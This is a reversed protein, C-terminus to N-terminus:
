ADWCLRGSDNGTRDYARTGTRDYARSHWAQYSSTTTKEGQRSATTLSDGSGCSTRPEEVYALTSARWRAKRKTIAGSRGSITRWCRGVPRHQRRIVPGQLVWHQLGCRGSPLFVSSSGLNKGLVGCFLQPQRWRRGFARNTIFSTDSTTSAKRERQYFTHALSRLFPDAPRRSGSLLSTTSVGLHWGAARPTDIGDDLALHPSLAAWDCAPEGAQHLDV